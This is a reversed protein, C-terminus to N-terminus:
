AWYIHTSGKEKAYAVAQSLNILRIVLGNEDIGCDTWNGESTTPVANDAVVVQINKQAEEIARELQEISLPDCNFMDDDPLELQLMDVLLIRANRNGMNLDLDVYNYTLYNGSIEVDWENCSYFSVSM